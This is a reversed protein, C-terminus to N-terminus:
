RHILLLLMEYPVLVHLDMELIIQIVSVNEKCLVLQCVIPM